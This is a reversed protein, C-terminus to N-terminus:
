GTEDDILGYPPQLVSRSFWLAIRDAVDPPPTNDIVLLQGKGVNADAWAKLHQYVREGFAADAFESDGPAARQGLNKQPSDIMLFGPHSAGLEIATEYISLQWALALLTTAGASGIEKYSLGRAHPVYADDIFPESLKPFRWDGLLAAFRTNLSQLVSARDPRSSRAEKIATALASESAQLRAATARRDDLGRHLDAAEERARHDGRLRNVQALMQDRETLFPSLAPRAASDLRAQSEEALRELSALSRAAETREEEVVEIYRSIEALRDELSKREAGVDVDSGDAEVVESGCLSCHGHDIHPKPSLPAFCSPCVSVGLPDFLVAAEEYFNLKSLDEAYQSRLPLLRNLLTERDRLISASRTAAASASEHERRVTTLFDSTAAVRIDLDALREEASKIAVEAERVETLDPRSIQHEELFRVLSVLEREITRRQERVANLQAGLEAEREDRVGFMLDIVQRLKLQRMFNSEDLLDGNDLRSHSLYYLRQFDRFSLPQRPSDPKTPAERLTVGALGIQDLLYWSLSDSDGASGLRRRLREHPEALGALDARHVTVHTGVGLQREIVVVGDNTELELLVDRARSVIEPHRPYQDAGLSYDILQLISTKGTSVGGAVIGLPLIGGIGVFPVDYNKSTGRVRLTRIMM